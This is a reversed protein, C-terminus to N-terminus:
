ACQVCLYIDFCFKGWDLSGHGGDIGVIERRILLPLYNALTVETPHRDQGQSSKRTTERSDSVARKYLAGNHECIRIARTSQACGVVNCIRLARGHCLVVTKSEKAPLGRNLHIFHVLKYAHRVGLVDWIVTLSTQENM